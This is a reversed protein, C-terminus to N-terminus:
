SNNFSNSYADSWFNVAAKDIFAQRAEVETSYSGLNFHIFHPLRRSVEVGIISWLAGSRQCLILIAARGQLRDVSHVTLEPCIEPNDSYAFVAGTKLNKVYDYLPDIDIIAPCLPFYIESSWMYQASRPTMAFDLGPEGDLGAEWKQLSQHMRNLNKPKIDNTRDTVHRLPGSSAWLALRAKCNSAEEPTVARMWLFNPNGSADRLLSPNDLFAEISGCLYEVRRRTIPNKLVNELRSLWRLNEPRNNRCNTDIHDVVYHPDEPEGHFATAVIRHIRVGSITLYPNSSSEKGFTWKNDAARTRHAERQYRLVAGNDRVSYREGDYICPREEIYHEVDVATM